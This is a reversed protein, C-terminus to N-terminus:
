DEDEEDEIFKIDAYYSNDLLLKEIRDTEMIVGGLIFEDTDTIVLARYDAGRIIDYPLQHVYLKKKRGIKVIKLVPTHNFDKIFEQIPKYVKEVIAARAEELEEYMFREMSFDRNTITLTYKM